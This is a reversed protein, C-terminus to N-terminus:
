GKLEQKYEMIATLAIQEAEEMSCYLRGGSADEHGGGNFFRRAMEECHFGHSSRLSVLILNPKETDERLSISLKMGKIKLPENVLGEADGRIFHFRKMEAKTISFFAAHLQEVVQMKKFIVYSRLRLAHISMSHYVRNYIRDKNIGKSLLQSVVYFVEARSSNYAFAGTDTMLGCYLNSACNATMVEFGGLQNIIRFVLECTSSADPHSISMVTDIDPSLHHDILIKPAKCGDLVEQLEDTRSTTNFDMCCVLDADAFLAKVEDPKKDFRMVQQFGPMWHLFDPAADPLVVSVKRGEGEACERTGQEESRAGQALFEAWALSSGVADGDPSKHCCVVINRASALTQKLLAVEADTLINIQM